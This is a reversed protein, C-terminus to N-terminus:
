AHRDRWQELRDKWTKVFQAAKSKQEPSLTAHFEALAMTVKPSVENVMSQHRSVIQMLQDERLTDSTMLGLFEEVTQLRVQSFAQKADMLSEKVTFLKEKQGEDLDLVEAIRDIKQQATHSKGWHSLMGGPGHSGCEKTYGQSAAFSFAAGLVVVGVTGILFIRKKM